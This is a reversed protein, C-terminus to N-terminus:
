KTNNDLFAFAVVDFVNKMPMVNLNALSDISIDSLDKANGYPIIANMIGERCAALLKEKLGGIPLVDGRLTVEGTMCVDSRVKAQFILSILVIVMCVGASPGDKPTAGEPVHVHFDTANIQRILRADNTMNTNPTDKTSNDNTYINDKEFILAAIDIKLLEGIAKINDKIFSLAVEISESMVKGINGTIKISGKGPFCSAEISLVEGGVETWALGHVLGKSATRGEIDSNLWKKTGLFKDLNSPSVLYTTNEAVTNNQEHDILEANNVSNIAVDENEILQSPSESSDKAANNESKINEDDYSMRVCKRAIKEIKRELSRVGSERTYFRIIELLAEDTIEIEGNRIGHTEYVHPIVHRKIIAIKEADTYGTLRIIEMRNLLPAQINGLSNATAIFIVQSLDYDVDLYHDNFRTNQEPDLVELLAASPDGRGYDRGMKDIEDLLIVPNSVGVKKMAEIIRGPMAGIYTKRHGRIDSEDYIGGLSVKAFPRGLAKAISKALSTKGVGPPGALCLITKTPNEIRNCVSIYELIRDKVDKLGYHEDDLTNAAYKINKNGPCNNNWPIDVLWELYNRIISAEASMPSMQRLRNIERKSKEKVEKSMNLKEIKQEIEKIEQFEDDGLEKQIAKLQEHLFFEKQSKEIKSQVTDSIKKKTKNLEIHRSLEETIIQLRTLLSNAALLEYRRNLASELHFGVLDAVIEPDKSNRLKNLLEVSYHGDDSYFHLFSNVISDKMDHIREFEQIPTVTEVQSMEVYDCKTKDEFFVREIKARRSATVVARLSGDKATLVHRITAIIGIEHLDAFGPTEIASDKQFALFAEFSESEAYEADTSESIENEIYEEEELDHDEFDEDDDMTEDCSDAIEQYKDDLLGDTKKIKDSYEGNNLSEDISGVASMHSCITQVSKSRNFCMTMSISPLLVLGRICILPYSNATSGPHTMLIDESDNDTDGSINAAACEIETYLM